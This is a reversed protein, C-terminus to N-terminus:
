ATRRDWRRQDHVTRNRNLWVGSFSGPTRHAVNVGSHVLHIFLPPPSQGGVGHMIRGLRVTRHSRNTKTIGYLYLSYCHTCGGGIRYQVNMHVSRTSRSLNEFHLEPIASDHGSYRPLVTGMDGGNSVAEM